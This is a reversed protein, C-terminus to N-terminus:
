FFDSGGVLFRNYLNPTQEMRSNYGQITKTDTDVVIYYDDPHIDTRNLENTIIFSDNARLSITLIENDAQPAKYWVRIPMEM